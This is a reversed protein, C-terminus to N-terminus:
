FRFEVGALGTLGGKDIFPSVFVSVTDNFQYGALVMPVVAYAYGTVAGIELYAKNSQFRKGLYFSAKNFSNYYAGAIINNSEVRFHPHIWNYDVPSVHLTFAIAVSYVLSM